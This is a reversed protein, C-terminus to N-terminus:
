SEVLDHLQRRVIQAPAHKEREAAFLTKVVAANRAFTEEQQRVFDEIGHVAEELVRRLVVVAELDVRARVDVWVM